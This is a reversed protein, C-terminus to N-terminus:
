PFPALNSMRRLKLLLHRSDRGGSKDLSRAGSTGHRLCIESFLLRPARGAIQVTAPSRSMLPGLPPCCPRTQSTGRSSPSRGRREPRRGWRRPSGGTWIPAIAMKGPAEGMSSAVTGLRIAVIGPEEPTEGMRVPFMGVQIAVTGMEEAVRWDPHSDDGDERPNSGGAGRGHGDLHFDDGHPHCLDRDLRAHQREQSSSGQLSPSAPPREPRSPIVEPASSDIRDPGFPEPRLPTERLPFSIRPAALRRKPRTLTM